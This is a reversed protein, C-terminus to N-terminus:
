GESNLEQGILVVQEFFRDVSNEDVTLNSILLRLTLIGGITAMGVLGLGQTHLRARLKQNFTNSIDPPAIYRFCVNFSTRPVTLELEATRNIVEEAYECLSLYREIREGFGKKGFYKWDLFWKLSDVRKGCQLSIAGLDFVDNYPSEKFLYSDDGGSLVTGLSHTRNNILMFNCMLSSGLMKHFDCTVSDVHEIGGLFKSRLTESMLVAGGWAGDVHLWFNYKERLELLPQLHDYAGRITTGATAAVFFPNDGNKVVAAIEDELASMIIEGRDNVPIKVLHSTGIGLINAAKDMSYHADQSVFAFMDNEQFLGGKKVQSNGLNRACMMAIMNANSSGTTMQGEGQEFGVLELMQQIMYKEMLTSVPASEYTCSSTNSLAVVIEGIISPLNAGAWMRNVFSPHNTTVGFELYKRAWNLTEQLDEKNGKQELQLIQSLDEPSQYNLFEREPQEQLYKEILTSLETLLTIENM